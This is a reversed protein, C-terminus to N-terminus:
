KNEKMKDWDRAMITTMYIMGFIAWTILLWVVSTQITITEELPTMIFRIISVLAGLLYILILYKVLKM